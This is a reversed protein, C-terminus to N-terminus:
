GLWWENNIVFCKKQVGQGRVKGRYQLLIVVCKPSFLVHSCMTISVARGGGEDFSCTTLTYANAIHGFFEGVTCCCVVIAPPAILLVRIQNNPDRGCPYETGKVAGDGFFYKKARAM